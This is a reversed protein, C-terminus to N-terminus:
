DKEQYLVNLVIMGRGPIKARFETGNPTIPVHPFPSVIITHRVVVTRLLPGQVTGLGESSKAL